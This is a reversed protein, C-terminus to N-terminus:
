AAHHAGRSVRAADERLQAAAEAQGTSYALRSARGLMLAGLPALLARPTVVGFLRGIISQRLEARVRPIDDIVILPGLPDAIV